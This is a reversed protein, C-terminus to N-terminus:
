LVPVLETEEQHDSPKSDDEVYDATITVDVLSPLCSDFADDLHVRRGSMDATFTPMDMDDEDYDIAELEVTALDDMEFMEMEFGSDDSDFDATCPVDSITLRRNSQTSELSADDDVDEVESFTGESDFGTEEIREPLKKIMEKLKLSTPRASPKYATCLKYIEVYPKYHKDLLHFDPPTAALTKESIYYASECESYPRALTLLEFCIM